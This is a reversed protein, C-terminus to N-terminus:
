SPADNINLLLISKSRKCIESHKEESDIETNSRKGDSKNLRNLLAQDIDLPLSSYVSLKDKLTEERLISPSISRLTSYIKQINVLKCASVSLLTNVLLKNERVIAIFLIVAAAIIQPSTGEFLSLSSIKECAHECDLIITPAADADSTFVFRSILDIPHTLSVSLRLTKAINSSVRGIAFKDVDAALSIEDLTRPYGQLKCAIYLAAGALVIANRSYDVQLLISQSFIDKGLKLIGQSLRLNAASGIEKVLHLNRLIKSEIPDQALGKVNEIQSIGAVLEDSSARAAGSHKSDDSFSRWEAGECLVKSVKVAGCEM